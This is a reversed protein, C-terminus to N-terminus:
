LGTRKLRSKIPTSYSLTTYRRLSLREWASGFGKYISLGKSENDPSYRIPKFMGLPPDKHGLKLSFPGLWWPDAITTDFVPDFGVLSIVGFQAGIIRDEGWLKRPGLPAVRLQVGTEVRIGEGLSQWPNLGKPPIHSPMIDVGVGITLSNFVKKIQIQPRLREFGQITLKRFGLFPRFISGKEPTFNPNSVLNRSFIQLLKSQALFGTETEKSQISYRRELGSLAPFTSSVKFETSLPLDQSHFPNLALDLRAVPSGRPLQQKGRQNGVALPRLRDRIRRPRCERLPQLIPALYQTYPRNGNWRLVGTLIAGLTPFQEFLQQTGSSM